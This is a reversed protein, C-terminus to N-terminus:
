VYCFGMRCQLEGNVTIERKAAQGVGLKNVPTCTFVGNDQLGAPSLRLVSGEFRFGADGEKTWLLKGAPNGALIIFAVQSNNHMSFPVLTM